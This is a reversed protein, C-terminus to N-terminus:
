LFPSGFCGFVTNYSASTSECKPLDGIQGCLQALSALVARPSDEQPNYHLENLARRVEAVNSNTDVIIELKIRIQRM